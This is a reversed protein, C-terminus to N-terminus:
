SHILPSFRPMDNKRQHKSPNQPLTYHSQSFLRLLPDVLCRVWRLLHTHSVSRADYVIATIVVETTAETRQVYKIFSYTPERDLVFLPMYKHTERGVEVTSRSRSVLPLCKDSWGM